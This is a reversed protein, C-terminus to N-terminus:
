TPKSGGSGSNNFGVGKNAVNPGGGSQNGQVPTSAIDAIFSPGKIVADSPRSIIKAKNPSNMENFAGQEPLLLGNKIKAAGIFMDAVGEKGFTVLAGGGEVYSITLNFGAKTRTGAELTEKVTGFVPHNVQESLRLMSYKRGNLNM